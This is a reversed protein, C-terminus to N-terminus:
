RFPRRCSSAGRQLAEVELQFLFIARPLTSGSPPARTCSVSRALGCTARLAGRGGRAPPVLACVRAAHLESEIHLAELVAEVAAKADYFDVAADKATWNRRGRAPGLAVGAVELTEIAVPRAGKGGERIPGTPAAGDRLLARRQAQHRASRSSTRCWAPLMTTRM